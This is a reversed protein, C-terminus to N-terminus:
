NADCAFIRALNTQRFHIEAYQRSGTASLPKRAQYPLALRDLQHNGAVRIGELLRELEPDDIVNVLAIAEHFVDHFICALEARRVFRGLRNSADLPCHLGAPLNRQFRRQGELALVLLQKELTFICLFAQSSVDLLPRCLKFGFLARTPVPVGRGDLRLSAGCRYEVIIAAVLARTEGPRRRILPSHTSPELFNSVMLGAVPSTKVWITSAEASSTSRATLAARWAKSSRAPGHRLIEALSRPRRSHRSASRTSCFMSSSASSSVSSLPLGIKSDLYTSM